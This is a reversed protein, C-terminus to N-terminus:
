AGYGPSTLLSNGGHSITLAHTSSWASADNSGEEIARVRVYCAGSPLRPLGASVTFAGPNKWDTEVYRANTTFTNNSAFQFQLKQRVPHPLMRASAMFNSTTVTSGNAPTLNTPIQPATM